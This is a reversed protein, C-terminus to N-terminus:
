AHFVKVGGAFALGGAAMDVDMSDKLGCVEFLVKPTLEKMTGTVGDRNLRELAGKIASYAPALSAFSFIMIRFGMEKAEQATILPSTGNEVSNLLLPGPHLDIVAQRAEEKSRFGELLGVDAGIGRAAKLRKICEDYGHQQNADTSAILVIDSQARDKAAKAARIRSLFTEMDVVKKGQLHGCRKPQVQVEIHFRAVGARIYQLVSNTVM